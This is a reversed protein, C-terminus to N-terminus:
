NPAKDQKKRLFYIAAQVFPEFQEGSKSELRDIEKQYDRKNFTKNEKKKGVSELVVQIIEARNRKLFGYKNNLELCNINEEIGKDESYMEGNRRYNIRLITSNDLPNVTFKTNRKKESCKNCGNGDCSLLLNRYDTSLRDHEEQTLSKDIYQKQPIYHEISTKDRNNQIRCMCYCCLGGQEKFLVDRLTSKDKYNAYTAFESAKHYILSRPENANNKDIWKM